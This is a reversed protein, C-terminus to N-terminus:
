KSKHTSAKKYAEADTLSVRCSRKGYRKYTIAREDVCLKRASERSIGLFEGLEAFTLESLHASLRGNKLLIIPGHSKLSTDAQPASSRGRPIPSSNKEAQRREWESIRITKGAEDYVYGGRASQGPKYAGPRANKPREYPPHEGAAIMERRVSSVLGRSYELKASVERDSMRQYEETAFAKRIVARKTQDPSQSSM